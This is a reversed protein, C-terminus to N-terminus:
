EGREPGAATPDAVEDYHREGDYDLVYGVRLEFCDIVGSGVEGDEGGGRRM